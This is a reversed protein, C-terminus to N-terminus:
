SFLLAAGLAGANEGLNSKVINTNKASPSLINHKMVKRATPFIFRGDNAIGGGIVIIEPNLINVVNALGIGLHEGVMQYVKIAKKDGKKALKTIETPTAGGSRLGKATKMIGKASVYAELCGNNGCSCKWGGQKIIMHGIEGASGNGGRYLNGDVILCGGVGTGMTLGVFNKNKKGAKGLVAEALGFCNVDNEIAVKKTKFKRQILNALPFNKLVKLNPPNLILGQKLDIPGPVGIGIGKIKKASALYNICDFIQGIIIKKNAKSKTLVRKKNIIKNNKVLVSNIKYGGIDLGIYM